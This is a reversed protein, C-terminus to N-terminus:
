LVEIKAKSNYVDEIFQGTAYKIVKTYKRSNCNICLPQINDISDSGGKSLPIIHDETLTIESETRKCCLCMYNYKAKLVEWEEFTHSGSADREMALRRRNHFNKREPTNVGGKWFNNEKGMARYLPKHGKQFSGRNTYGVMGKNWSPKAVLYCKRSCFIGNQSNYEKQCVECKKILSM